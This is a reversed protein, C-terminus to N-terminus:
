LRVQLEHGVETGELDLARLQSARLGHLSGRRRHSVGPPLPYRREAHPELHLGRFGRGGPHLRVVPDAVQGDGALRPPMVTIFATPGQEFKKKMEDSGMSKGTCFPMMYDGQGVSENRMAEMIKAEGPLKAYDGKHLPIVMHTISSVVFVLVAAVLIPLWFATLEIM